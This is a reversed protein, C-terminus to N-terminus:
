YETLNRKGTLERYSIKKLFVFKISERSSKLESWDRNYHVLKVWIINLLYSNDVCQLVKSLVKKKKISSALDSSIDRCTSMLPSDLYDVNPKNPKNYSSELDRNERSQGLNHQQVLRIILLAGKVRLLM